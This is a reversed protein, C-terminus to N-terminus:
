AHNMTPNSPYHSNKDQRQLRKFQLYTAGFNILLGVEYASAELYNLAQELHVDNLESVAKIEVCIVGNVLFDVRRLGIQENKNYVPLEFEPKVTLKKEELENQLAKQYIYEQFGRGMKRHVEMAAGIIDGTIESHIM